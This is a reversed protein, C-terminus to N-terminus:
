RLFYLILQYQNLFHTDNGHFARVRNGESYSLLGSYSLFWMRSNKGEFILVNSNAALGNHTTFNNFTYGDYCSVGHDTAIWIYGASDQAIDYVVSSPLGENVTYQKFFSIQSRCIIALALIFVLTILKRM